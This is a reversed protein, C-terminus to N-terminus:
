WEAEVFSYSGFMDTTEEIFDIYGSEGKMQRKRGGVGTWEKEARKEKDRVIEDRNKAQKETPLSGHRARAAEM